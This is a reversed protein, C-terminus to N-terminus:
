NSNLLSKNYDNPKAPFIIDFEDTLKAWPSHGNFNAWDGNAEVSYMRKDSPGDRIGMVKGSKGNGMLNHVSAAGKGATAVDGNRFGQRGSWDINWLTFLAYLKILSHFWGFIIYGPLLVLEKPHTAFYPAM